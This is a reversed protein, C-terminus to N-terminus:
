RGGSAAATKDDALMNKIAPRGMCRNWWANVEERGTIIEGYGCAFLRRILPIYYIDVLTFENGAMYSRKRLLQEAIDFFAALSQLSAFVVAEDCPLGILKKAFKEFVIRGAPDSFYLMEVSQGQDFQATAEFDSAPPLLPFSYKTALYKCIARSEYLTFGEATTIAPIKGWPHRNKHENSQQQSLKKKIVRYLM